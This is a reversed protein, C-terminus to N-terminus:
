YRRRGTNTCELRRHRYQEEVGKVLLHQTAEEPTVNHKCCYKDVYEKFEINNNYEEMNGGGNKLDGRRTGHDM